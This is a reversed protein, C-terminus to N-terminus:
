KSVAELELVAAPPHWPGRTAAVVGHGTTDPVGATNCDANTLCGSQPQCIGAANCLVHAAGLENEVRKGKRHIEMKGGPEVYMIGEECVIMTCTGKITEPATIVARVKSITIM